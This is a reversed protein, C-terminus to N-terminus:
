NKYLNNKYYPSHLMNMLVPRICMNCMLAYNSKLVM